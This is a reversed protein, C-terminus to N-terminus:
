QLIYRSLDIEVTRNFSKAKTKVKVFLLGEWQGIGNSQNISVDMNPWLRKFDKENIEKGTASISDLEAMAASICRQRVLQFHNIRRFGSLSLAFCFLIVGLVSLGVIFETFLFGRFRNKRM